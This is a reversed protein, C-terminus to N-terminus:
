SALRTPRDLRRLYSWTAATESDIKKSLQALTDGNQVVEHKLFAISKENTDLRRHVKEFEQSVGLAFDEFFVQQEESLARQGEFLARLEGFLPKIEKLINKTITQENM